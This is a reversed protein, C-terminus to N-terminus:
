KVNKRNRGVVIGRYNKTAKSGGTTYQKDDTDPADDEDSFILRGIGTAEDEDLEISIVSLSQMEAPLQLYAKNLWVKVGPDYRYFATIGNKTSLGFCGSHAKEDGAHLLNVGARTNIQPDSSTLVYTTKPKGKILIGEGPYMVTTSTYWLAKDDKAKIIYTKFEGAPTKTGDEYAIDTLDFNFHLDGFTAYGNANTTVAFTHPFRATVKINDFILQGAYRDTNYVIQKVFNRSSLSIIKEAEGNIQFVTKGDSTSRITVHNYVLPETETTFYVGKTVGYTTVEQSSIIVQGVEAQNGAKFEMLVKGTNDKLQFNGARTTGASGSISTQAFDFDLQYEQTHELDYFDPFTYTATTGNNSTSLKNRLWLVNNGGTTQYKEAGLRGTQAIYWENEWGDGEFDQEYLTFVPNIVTKSYKDNDIAIHSNEVTFRARVVDANINRAILKDTRTHTGDLSTVTSYYTAVHNDFEIDVTVWAGNMFASMDEDNWNSNYEHLWYAPLYGGNSDFTPGWVHDNASIAFFEQAGTSNRDVNNALIFVGNEWSKGNGTNYNRYELHIKEGSNIVYDPSFATHFGANNKESGVLTANVPHEVVDQNTLDPIESGIFLYYARTSANWIIAKKSSSNAANCEVIIDSLDGSKVNNITGLLYQGDALPASSTFRFIPADYQPGYSWVRKRVNINRINLKDGDANGTGKIDMEVAAGENLTLDDTQMQSVGTNGPYPVDISSNTIFLRSGYEMKISKYIPNTESATAGFYLETFRNAWIPSAQIGGYSILAGAWVDTKGYYSHNVSPLHVAADGQKCINTQKSLDAGVLRIRDFTHKTEKYVVQDGGEITTNAVLYITTPNIGEAVNVTYESGNGDPTVIVEKANCTKDITGNDSIVTRGALTRAPPAQTFGELEGVFFSTHPPQNYGETQWVMAQRYQHDYWLSQMRYETPVTTTYVRLYKNDSSRMVIEERWDGFIDGTACPNKKTGNINTTEYNGHGTDFIRAGLKDVYLYGESAGPGNITEDLLDGDWYIRFNLAIPNPTKSNNWDNTWGSIYTPNYPDPQVYSLPVLGSSTSAGIGGPYENSFNGAMARGDDDGATTRSYIECTSANRFNNGPHDENCAFTELGKRYPDLDGTHIADGHGLSTSSMGHLSKDSEHWDLVMSGYVIEDRGDEDVDAINFNHNGQGYWGANTNSNWTNGVKYLKNTSKNVAYTCAVIKTYIGRGLFIYPTKGDLYPAGMFYKSSRHGYSDGWDSAKGRPIPYIICDYAKGTSGDIYILWEEGSNTFTQNASHTIGGRINESANGIVQTTGDNHHLVTNATGRYLVECKGDENWDFAVADWQEDAGYCTNPGCDIWWLRGYNISSAYCEIHAYMTYNNTPFLNDQDTQNKRKVIFDIKGDGDVDGLSVDNITYNAMSGAPDSFKWVTVGNNAQVNAMPIELYGKQWVTVSQVGYADETAMTKEIGGVVPKVSYTNSTSGNKHVYNSTELNSAIKTGNCYLNYKVGYYEDSQVRWSVFVDSGSKVAVLGRDLLDTKIQADVPTVNATMLATATFLLSTM